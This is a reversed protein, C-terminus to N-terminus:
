PKKSLLYDRIELLDSNEAATILEPLLKNPIIIKDMLNADDLALLETWIGIPLDRVKESSDSLWKLILDINGSKIIFKIDPSFEGMKAFFLNLCPDDLMVAVQQLQPLLDHNFLHHHALYCLKPIQCYCMLEMIIQPSPAMGISLKKIQDITGFLFVSDVFFQRDISNLNSKSTVILEDVLNLELCIKTKTLLRYNLKFGSVPVFFLHYKMLYDLDEIINDELHCYDSILQIHTTESRYDSRAMNAPPNLQLLGAEFLIKTKLAKNLSYSYTSLYQQYYFPLPKDYHQCIFQMIESTAQKIATIFNSATLGYGQSLIYQVVELSKSQIAYNMTHSFYKKGNIEYIMDDILLTKQGSKERSRDLDRNAHLTPIKDEIFKIMQMSGSLIAPYYLKPHWNILKKDDLIKVLELNSNLIPYSILNPSISIGDITAQEVLFLIINIQNAEFANELTKTSIGIINNIDQVISISHSTVARNYISINPELGYKRLYFYIDEYGFEAAYFLLECQLKIQPNLEVMWQLIELQNNIIALQYCNTDICHGRSQLNKVESFNGLLIQVYLKKKLRNFLFKEKFFLNSLYSGITTIPRKTLSNIIVYINECDFTKACINNFPITFLESNQRTIQDFIKEFIWQIINDQKYGLDEVFFQNSSM